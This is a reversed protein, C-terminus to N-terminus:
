WKGRVCSFMSFRAKINIVCGCTKHKKNSPKGFTGCTIVKGSVRSAPCELCISKRKEYESQNAQSIPPLQFRRSLQDLMSVWCSRCGNSRERYWTDSYNFVERHIEILEKQDVSSINKYPYQVSELLTIFRNKM